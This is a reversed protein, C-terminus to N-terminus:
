TGKCKKQHRRLSSKWNFKMGCGKPCDTYTRGKTKQEDVIRRLAANKRAIRNARVNNKKKKALPLEDSHDRPHRFLGGPAPITTAVPLGRDRDGTLLSPAQFPAAQPLLQAEVFVRDQFVFITTPKHCHDCSVNYKTM